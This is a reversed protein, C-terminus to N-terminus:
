AAAPLAVREDDVDHVEVVSVHNSLVPLKWLSASCTMSRYVSM